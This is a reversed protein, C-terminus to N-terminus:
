PKKDREEQRGRLFAVDVGLGQLGKRAEGVDRGLESVQHQVSDVKGDLRQIDGKMADLKPGIWDEVSKQLETRAARSDQRAAFFVAAVAAVAGVGAALTSADM